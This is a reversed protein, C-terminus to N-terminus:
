PRHAAGFLAGRIFRILEDLDGVAAEVRWRAEPEMTRGAADQLTLGAAFIRQIVADQLEGDAPTRDRVVALDVPHGNLEASAVVASENSACRRLQGGSRSEARSRRDEAIVARQSAATVVIAQLYAAHEPNREAAREIIRDVEAAIATASEAAVLAQAVCAATRTCADEARTMLRAQRNCEEGDTM